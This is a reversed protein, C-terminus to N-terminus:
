PASGTDGQGIAQVVQALQAETMSGREPSVLGSDGRHLVATLDLWGREPADGELALVYRQGPAFWTPSLVDHVTTAVDLAPSYGGRLTITWVASADAGPTQLLVADTRFRLRTVILPAHTPDDALVTADLLTAEVILEVSAWAETLVDVLSSPAADISPEPFRADAGVGADISPLDTVVEEDVTAALEVHATTEGLSDDGGSSGCGAATTLAVPALALLAM